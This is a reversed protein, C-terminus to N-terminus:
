AWEQSSARCDPCVAEVRGHWCLDKISPPTPTPRYDDIHERIASEVYATPNRINAPARDLVQTAVRQAWPEDSHLIKALKKLDPGDNHGNASRGNTSQSGLGGSGKGERGKREKGQEARARSPRLTERVAGSGNALPEPTEGPKEHIPCAPIRSATPHSVRQHEAWSVIHLYRQGAVEYRCLPGRDIMARLHADIRRTGLADDLPYLEAKILRLDDLGRGYDDLYGLLGVFTWRVPIPWSCVTLSRRMEPKVSRIRAM